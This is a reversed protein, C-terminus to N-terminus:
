SEVLVGNVDKYRCPVGNIGKANEPLFGNVGSNKRNFAM